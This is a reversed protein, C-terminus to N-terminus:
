KSRAKSIINKEIALVDAATLAAKRHVNHRIKPPHINDAINPYLGNAATWRFFQCISRLYQAITNPNCAVKYCDGKSNTRYSWGNKNTMDLQIAKHEQGLYDRYSLIDQRQPYSIKMYKLWVMFQRLNTTYTRTTKKSRDIFKVFSDFLDITISKPSITMINNVNLTKMKAKAEM